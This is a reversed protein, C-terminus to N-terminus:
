CERGFLEHAGAEVVALDCAREEACRVEHDRRRAEFCCVAGQVGVGFDDLAAGVHRAVQAGVAAAREVAGRRPIRIHDYHLRPTNVSVAVIPKIDLTDLQRDLQKTPRMDLPHRLNLAHLMIM